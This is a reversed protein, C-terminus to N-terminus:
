CDIDLPQISRQGRLRTRPRMYQCLAPVPHLSRCRVIITKLYYVVYLQSTSPYSECVFGNVTQKVGSGWKEGRMCDGGGGGAVTAMYECPKQQQCRTSMARISASRERWIRADHMHDSQFHSVESRGLQTGFAVRRGVAATTTTRGGTRGDTRGVSM